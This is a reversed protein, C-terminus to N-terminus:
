TGQRHRARMPRGRIECDGGLAFVSQYTITATYQRGENHGAMDGALTLAPIAKQMGAFQQKVPEIAKRRDGRMSGLETGVSFDLDESL